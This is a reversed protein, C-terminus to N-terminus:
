AFGLCQHLERSLVGPTARGIPRGDLQTVPLVGLLSNTLFVEDAAWLEDRGVRQFAVTMGLEAALECVLARTIGPLAPAVADNSHVLLTPDVDQRTSPTMLRNGQRLFLNSVMGGVVNSGGSLLLVEALGRARAASLERLRWWYNLTKYGAMPDQAALRSTSSEVSAGHSFWHEPWTPLLESTVLITARSDVLSPGPQLVRSLGGTVTLRLRAVEGERLHIDAAAADVAAALEDALVVAPFELDLAAAMLRQLHRQWHGVGARTVRMTEFLGVGHQLGADWASVVVPNQKSPQGDVWLLAGM